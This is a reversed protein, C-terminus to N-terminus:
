LGVSFQVGNSATWGPSATPDLVLAQAYAPVGTPASALSLRVSAFGFGNTLVGISALSGTADVLLTCGAVPVSAPRSGLLLVGPADSPAALLDLAFTRALTAPVGLPALGPVSPGACGAGYTQAQAAPRATWQWTAALAGEFVIVDGAAADFVMGHGNAYVPGNVVPISTWDNGDWELLRDGTTIGSYLLVRQTVPHYTMSHSWRASPKTTSMRQQWLTGDWEWTDGLWTPAASPDRVMGGFLVVRQRAADYVMAHEERPSPSPGEFPRWSAGDWLWTDALQEGEQQGGFLVTEGRAADYAMAAHRRPRPGTAVDPQRWTAGDYLWTGVEGFMVTEGRAEDYAMTVGSANAPGLVGARRWVGSVREWTEDTDGDGYLVARSRRQDYVMSFDIRAGMGGAAVRTWRSGDFSWMEETRAAAADAGGFALIRQRRPDYVTGLDWRGLPHAADPCLSWASGDWEWTDTLSNQILGLFGSAQLGGYLMTRGRAADFAMAANARAPPGGAVAIWDNGDWEWADNRTTRSPDYGGFLVARQRGIDYVMSASWRPAPRTSPQRETWTSGDWEWTDNLAAGGDGSGGFLLTVGRAEDFVMTHSSRPPPSSSLLRRTWARGDWEWTEDSPGSAGSRIGGFLVTRRRVGDYALAAGVPLDSAPASSRPVWSELVLEWTEVRSGAAGSPPRRMVAVVRDRAHDYVMQAFSPQTPARSTQVWSPQAPVLSPALAFVLLAGWGRPHLVVDQHDVM